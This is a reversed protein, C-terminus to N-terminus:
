EREQTGLIWGSGSYVRGCKECTNESGHVPVEAGCLCELHMPATQGIPADDRILAVKVFETAGSFRSM